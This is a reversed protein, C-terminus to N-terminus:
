NEVIKAIKSFNKVADAVESYMYLSGLAVTPIGKAASDEMAKLVAESVSKCATAKVGKEYFVAKYEDASLARPNDPTICYVCRAVESLAQAIYEFDKDKMVGSVINIKEEGFYKKISVVANEIGEPNHAGDAIVVPSDCLLEFRAPWVTKYLGNRMAEQSINFGNCKLLKVASIVNVANVPQYTGLLSISVDKLGDFDFVTKKLDFSKINLTSRDVTHLASNLKNCTEAIVCLAQSNEGCWLCPVGKKIIGAKEGAIEAITNGLFSTHDISIGTIVSLVSNKIINTADYRGGLGCELVVIDCKKRAFYEFAIATILEFETPKDQMEEAFEKVYATIEALEGNDIMVGSVAIRENFNVIYPSTYLGTKYGAEKFVSALMSCFSGKGNTGAVHVFKLKDQPNGLKECLQTIRELGPRCFFNSVLHIYELAEKYNM